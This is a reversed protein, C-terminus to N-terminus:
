SRAGVSRLIESARAGLADVKAAAGSWDGGERQAQVDAWDKRLSDLGTRAREVAGADVGAPLKRSHALGEIAHRAEEIQGNLRAAADNWARDLAEKNAAAKALADQARGPIDKAFTIAGQYDKNAMSDRAVAYSSEVAKVAEPAYRAADGKLSDIAASAAAMAAEAPAKASDTCAVAVLTM